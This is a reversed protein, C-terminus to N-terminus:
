RVHKADPTDGCASRLWGYTALDWASARQERGDRKGRYGPIMEAASPREVIPGDVLDVLADGREIAEIERGLNDFDANCKDWSAREETNLDREERTIRDRIQLIVKGAEERKARM